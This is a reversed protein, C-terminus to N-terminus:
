VADTRATGIEEERADSKGPTPSPEVHITIDSNPFQQEIDKELHDCFEHAAAVSISGEVVLHMDVHRKSGSKRTRFGHYEVFQEEHGALIAVIEQEEQRPLKEDLLDSSSKKTIDYAVKCIVLAVGIAVLPDLIKLGTIQVLILGGFVGLSTLVDTHLHWADAGLAISDTKDAVHLLYRSVLTNVLASVGMVAVGLGVFELDFGHLMRQIAEYIIFAAAGFILLAEITGSLNEIKGHGYPHEDDPPLDSVRVSFYAMLAALLDVSSHVAESIVSVSGTLVGVALKLLILFSNSAISIGAAGTKKALFEQM